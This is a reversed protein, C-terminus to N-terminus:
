ASRASMTQTEFVRVGDLNCAVGLGKVYARLKVDDAKLLGLLEPHALQAPKGDAAKGIVIHALLAGLDAVEFDLRTTTSIGRVKAPEPAPPPAAVVLQATTSAAAAEAQARDAAAKALAAAQENGARAAAAAAAAQQEAERRKAEAETALRQREAAAEAEARRRAEDAIRRQEQDWALMKAKLTREAEELLAAPGRFLDNIARLANNIPGTIGTRQNELAAAKAKIAKLEDAAMGYDEACAIQFEKIFGLAKQARDTLGAADPLSLAALPALISATTM